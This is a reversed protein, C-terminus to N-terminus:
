IHQTEWRKQHRYGRCNVEALQSGPTVRSLGVTPSSVVAKREGRSEEDGTQEKDKM